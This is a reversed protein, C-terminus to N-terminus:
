VTGGLAYRRIAQMAARKRLIQMGGRFPLSFLYVVFSFLGMSFIALFFASVNAFVAQLDEQFIAILLTSIAFVGTVGMVLISLRIPITLYIRPAIDSTNRDIYNASFVGVAAVIGMLALIVQLNWRVSTSFGMILTTFLDQIVIIFLFYVAIITSSLAIQTSLLGSAISRMYVLPIILYSITLNNLIHRIYHFRALVYLSSSIELSIHGLVLRMFLNTAPFVATAILLPLILLSLTLIGIDRVFTFQGFPFNDSISILAFLLICGSIFIAGFFFLPIYEELVKIFGRAGKNSEALDKM